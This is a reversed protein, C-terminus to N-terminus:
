DYFVKGSLVGGGKKAIYAGKLDFAVNCVIKSQFQGCFPMEAGEAWIFVSMKKSATMTIGTIRKASPAIKSLELKRTNPSMHFDAEM